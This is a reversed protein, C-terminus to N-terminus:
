PCGQTQQNARDYEEVVRRQCDPCLAQFPDDNNFQNCLGCKYPGAQSRTPALPDIEPPGDLPDHIRGSACLHGLAAVHKCYGGRSFGLCDCHCHAADEHVNVHYVTEDIKELRFARGPIDSGIETCRYKELRGREDTIALLDYPKASLVEVDAVIVRTSPKGNRFCDTLIEM